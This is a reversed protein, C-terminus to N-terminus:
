GAGVLAGNVQHGIHSVQPHDVSNINPKVKTVLETPFYTENM